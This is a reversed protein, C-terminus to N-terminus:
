ALEDLLTLCADRIDDRHIVIRRREDQSALGAKRLATVQRSITTQHVQLADTLQSMAVPGHELIHLVIALRTPDGLANMIPILRGLETVAVGARVHDARANAVNPSPSFLVWTRDAVEFLALNRGLGPCSMLSMHTARDAAAAYEDSPRLGTVRSIWQSATYASSRAATDSVDASM